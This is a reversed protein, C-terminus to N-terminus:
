SEPFLRKRAAVRQREKYAEHESPGSLVKQHAAQDMIQVEFPYFFSFAEKSGQPKIHILKRSIFKIFRYDSGSFFNEKRLFKASDGMEELKQDFAAQISKEDMVDLRQALEDCVQMFSEVPFLNNSSQDPMIHPFSIVNERVLFRVVQFTDFLNRTIFRVGLKDFIKMALADPKALLKIVTSSSTKFPKVEFGLLELSEPNEGTGKLFTRHTTGDHFIADQFPTLIQSQIEESFTSFLDNEAHVFVHIGRLIACAWRQMMAQEPDNSSAYLLLQRIDGLKKPDLFIEPIEADNFGLKEVMLVLARRHYYWLKEVDSQQNTDFGYSLLFASAADLTHISLKPIDIASGGGVVSGLISSDFLFRQPM